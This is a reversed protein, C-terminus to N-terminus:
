RPIEFVRGAKRDIDVITSSQTVAFTEGSEVDRLSQITADAFRLRLEAAEPYHNLVFVYSTRHGKHLIASALNRPQHHTGTGGGEIWDVWSVPLVPEVKVHPAPSYRKLLDGVFSIAALDDKEAETQAIPQPNWLLTGTGIRLEIRTTADPKETGAFTTHRGLEDIVPWAGTLLVVGGTTLYDHLARNSKSSIIPSGPMLVLPYSKLLSADHLLDIAGAQQGAQEVLRFLGEYETSAVGAHVGEISPGGRHMEDGCPLPDGIATHLHQTLEYAIGVDCQPTLSDWDRLQEIALKPIDRLVDMSPRRHAHSSAPSDGWTDRDHFMFWALSKCGHALACLAMFKMHDDSIRSNPVFNWWGSMFEASWTYDLSANMLKLVRAMSHYGSYSLLPNRYFDYGVIGGPGVARQFDPMRTPVGEPRHPNFNTMFTVDRVGNSEHMSRLTAIYKCMAWTKFEIWDTYRAIDPGISDPVSRPPLADHITTYSQQHAHALADVTNYKETLFQHYFGGRSVNVPNYDSGLFSDRVVYSVENDLNVMSICGGKSRLRSAIIPDVAALWHKVLNLYTPHLYSPQMGERKAIWYGQAPQDDHTWVMMSPDGNVLWAPQGGFPMENCCFPGCRFNLLLNRAQVLDLFKHLNLRPDTKGAFDFQGAPHSADPGAISHTSWQVYTTVCRLGTDALLGLMRDWYKPDLRFYQVEAGFIESSPPHNSSTKTV